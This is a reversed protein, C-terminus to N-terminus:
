ESDLDAMDDLVQAKRLADLANLCDEPKGLTTIGSQYHHSLVTWMGRTPPATRYLVLNEESQSIFFPRISSKVLKHQRVVRNFLENAQADSFPLSTM